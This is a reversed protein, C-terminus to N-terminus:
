RALSFNPSPRRDGLLTWKDYYLVIFKRNNKFGDLCHYSKVFSLAEEGIHNNSQDIKKAITLIDRRGSTRADSGNKWAGLIIRKHLFLTESSISNKFYNEGAEVAAVLSPDDSDKIAKFITCVSVITFVYSFYQYYQKKLALM